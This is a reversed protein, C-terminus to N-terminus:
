PCHSGLQDYTGVLYADWETSPDFVDKSAPDGAKLKCKRVLTAGATSTAGTGWQTGPCASGDPTGLGGDPGLVGVAYASRAVALCLSPSM